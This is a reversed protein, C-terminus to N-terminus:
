GQHKDASGPPAPVPRALEIFGEVVVKYHRAVSTKAILNLHKRLFDKSFHNVRVLGGFAEELFSSGYGETNDLVVDIIESKQLHPVLFRERFAEGNYEGDAPYRGSPVDSFDHAINITTNSMM